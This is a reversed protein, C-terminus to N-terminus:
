NLDENTLTAKDKDYVVCTVKQPGELGYIEAFFIEADPCTCDTLMKILETVNM